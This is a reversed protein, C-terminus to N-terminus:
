PSVSTGTAGAGTIELTDAVAAAAIQAWTKTGLVGVKVAGAAGSITTGANADPVGVRAAKDANVGFSGGATLAGRVNALQASARTTVRVGDGAAHNATLGSVDLRAGGQATVTGYAKCSGLSLYGGRDIVVASQLGCTNLYTAGNPGTGPAGANMSSISSDVFQFEGGNSQFLAGLVISGLTPNALALVNNWGTMEVAAADTYALTVGTGAGILCRDCNVVNGGIISGLSWVVLGTFSLPNSLSPQLSVGDFIIGDGTGAAFIIEFGSDLSAAPEQISFTNTNAVATGSGSAFELSVNTSQTVAMRIGALPGTNVLVFKGVGGNAALSAQAAYTITPFAVPPGAAFGTGGTATITAPFGASGHYTGVVRLPTGIASGPVPGPIYIPSGPNAGNPDDTYTGVLNITATKNWPTAALNVAARFTLVPLTSTGPNTDAGTTSAFIVIDDPSGIDMDVIRWVGNTRDARLTVHGHEYLRQAVSFDGILQTAAPTLVLLAAGLDQGINVITLDCGDPFQTSLDPLNLTTVADTNMGVYVTNPANSGLSFPGAGVFRAGVFQRATKLPTMTVTASASLRNGWRVDLYSFTGNGAVVADTDATISGRTWSVTCLAGVNISSKSTVTLDCGDFAYAVAVSAAAISGSFVCRRATTSGNAALSTGNTTNGVRCQTLDLISQQTVDMSNGLPAVIRCRDARVASAGTNSVSLAAGAGTGDIWVGVLNLVITQSGGLTLGVANAATLRVNALALSGAVNAVTHDGTITVAPQVADTAEVFGVVAIGPQFAITEVLSGPMVLIVAPKSPGCGDALAAVQAATVTAYLTVPGPQANPNVVYKSWGGSGSATVTAWVLAGAGNVVAQYMAGTDTAYFWTGAPVTAIAPRNAFTDCRLLGVPISQTM